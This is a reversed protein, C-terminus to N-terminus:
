FFLSIDNGESTKSIRHKLSYNVIVDNKALQDMFSKKDSEDFTAIPRPARSTDELSQDADGEIAMNINQKTQAHKLFVTDATRMTVHYSTMCMMFMGKLTTDGHICFKEVVLTYGFPIEVAIIDLATKKDDTWRALTVFGKSGADLPTITQAFEHGELFLGAGNEVQHRGYQPQYYYSVARYEDPISLKESIIQFPIQNNELRAKFSSLDVTRADVKKLMLQKDGHMELVGSDKFLSPGVAHDEYKKIVDKTSRDCGRYWTAPVRTTFPTPDLKDKKESEQALRPAVNERLFVPIGKGNIDITFQYKHPDEINGFYDGPGIMRTGPGAGRVAILNRMRLHSRQSWEVGSHKSFIPLASAAEGRVRCAVKGMEGKLLLLRFNGLSTAPTKGGFELKVLAQNRDFKLNGFYQRIYTLLRKILNARKFEVETDADLKRIKEVLTKNQTTELSFSQLIKVLSNLTYERNQYVVCRGGFCRIKPTATDLLQNLKIPDTIEDLRPIM